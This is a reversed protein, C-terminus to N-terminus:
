LLRPDNLDVPTYFCDSAPDYDVVELYEGVPGKQLEQEWPVKLTVQNVVAEEPRTALSPDFAYVRLRRFPPARLPRPMPQSPPKGNLGATVPEGSRPTETVESLDVKRELSVEKGDSRVARAYLTFTGSGEEELLFRSARDNKTRVPNAYTSPLVYI